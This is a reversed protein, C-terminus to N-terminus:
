ASELPCAVAKEWASADGGLALWVDALAPPVPSRAILEGRDLPVVVRAAHLAIRRLALVRGSPLTVRAPGGYSRDGLLPAGAHSAHVRIQHTRGTIPAVALLAPVANESALAVVAYRTLSPVADKGHATRLKPDRARGIPADWSGREPQPARSAIAVYRRDYTGRERAQHLRERASRSLAFVVVGSVDRDLRSTPHIREKPVGLARAVAADLAHAAGALDAITPM